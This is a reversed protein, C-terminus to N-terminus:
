GAAGVGQPVQGGSLAQVFMVHTGEFPDFGLAEPGLHGLTPPDQANVVLRANVETIPLPAALFARDIKEAAELLVHDEIPELVDGPVARIFAVMTHGLVTPDHEFAPVFQPDDGIGIGPTSLGVFKQGVFQIKRRSHNHFQLPAPPLRFLDKIFDLVLEIFSLGPGRTQGGFRSLGLEDGEGVIQEHEILLHQLGLMPHGILGFILATGLAGFGLLM